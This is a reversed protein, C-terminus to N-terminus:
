KYKNLLDINIKRIYADGLENLMIINFYDSLVKKDCEIIEILKTNNLQQLTYNLNYKVLINRIKESTGKETYGYKEGEYTMLYMGIAVAEGHSYKEYNYYKEIAHGITHGFNLIMRIGTDREDQEVIEKKIKCCKFVIEEYNANLSDLTLSNLFDFFEVNRICAYKIVEAMGDSIYKKPLTSLFMTDILVIKPQYFSGILNKGEPLNVAVKGGISSDVQSLLTTPIQIFPIGRMYTAAAFGAVDGVVGGGFAVIMDSRTIKNEILKSYISTLVKISKSDEGSELTIKYIEFGKNTFNKTIAEGYIENVNVDTIIVIRSGNYVNKIYDPMSDFIGESIIIDYSNTQLNMTLTKIKM